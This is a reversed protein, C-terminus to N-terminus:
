LGPRLSGNQPDFPGGPPQRGPSPPYFGASAAWSTGNGPM